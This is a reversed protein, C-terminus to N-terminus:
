DCIWGSGQIVKLVQGREHTRWHTRACPLFTINLMNVEESAHILDVWVEGTFSTTAAKVVTGGMKTSNPIITSRM